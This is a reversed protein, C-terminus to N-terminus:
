SLAAIFWNNIATKKAGTIGAAWPTWVVIGAPTEIVVDCNRQRPATISIYANTVETIGPAGITLYKRAIAGDPSQWDRIATIAVDYCKSGINIETPRNIQIETNM